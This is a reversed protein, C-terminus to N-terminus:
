VLNYKLREACEAGGSVLDAHDDGGEAVPAAPMEDTAPAADDRDDAAVVPGAAEAAVPAAPPPVADTAASDDTLTVFTSGLMVARVTVGSRGPSDVETVNAPAADSGAPSSSGSVKVQAKPSPLSATVPVLTVCM